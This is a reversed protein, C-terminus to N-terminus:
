SESKKENELVILSINKEYFYLILVIHAQLEVPYLAQSPDPPEPNSEAPAGNKNM